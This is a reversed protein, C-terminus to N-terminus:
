KRFETNLGRYAQLIQAYEIDAYGYIKAAAIIKTIYESLERYSKIDAVTYKIEFFKFIAISPLKRFKIKLIEIWKNLGIPDTIFEQRKINILQNM